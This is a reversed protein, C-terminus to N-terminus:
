SSVTCGVIDEQRRKIRMIDVNGVELCGIQPLWLVPIKNLEGRSDIINYPSWQM